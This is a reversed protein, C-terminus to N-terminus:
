MGFICFQMATRATNVSYRAAVQDAPQDPLVYIVQCPNKKEYGWSYQESSLVVPGEVFVGMEALADQSNTNDPAPPGGAPWDKNDVLAPFTLLRNHFPPDTWARIIASVLNDNPYHVSIPFSNGTKDTMAM